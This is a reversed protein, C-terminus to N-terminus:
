ATSTYQTAAFLNFEGQYFFKLFSEFETTLQDLNDFKFMGYNVDWFCFPGDSQVDMQIGLAHGSESSVIKGNADREVPLASVHLVGSSKNLFLDKTHRDRIAAILKTISDIEQSAVVIEKQMKDRKLVSEPIGISKDAKFAGSIHYEAQIKRDQATVLAEEQPKVGMKEQLGQIVKSMSLDKLRTEDQAEIDQFSRFRKHPNQLRAKILRYNIAACAGRGLIYHDGWKGQDFEFNIYKKNREFWDTEKLAKNLKIRMAKAAATEAQTSVLDIQQTLSKMFQEFEAEKLDLKSKDIKAGDLIETLFKNIGTNMTFAAIIKKAKALTTADLTAESDKLFEEKINHFLEEFKKRYGTEFHYLKGLIANLNKQLSKDLDMFKAALGFVEAEVLEILKPSEIAGLNAADRKDGLINILEKAGLKGKELIWDKTFGLRLLLQQISQPLFMREAAISNILNQLYAKNILTQYRVLVENRFKPRLNELQKVLNPYVEYIYYRDIEQGDDINKQLAVLDAELDVIAKLEAELGFPSKEAEVRKLEAEKARLQEAKEAELKKRLVEQEKDFLKRWQFDLETVKDDLIKITKEHTTCDLLKTIFKKNFAEIVKDHTILNKRLQDLEDIQRSLTRSDDFQLKAFEEQKQKAVAEFALTVNYISHLDSDKSALNQVGEAVAKFWGKSKASELKKYSVKTSKADTRTLEYNQFNEVTWQQHLLDVFGTEGLSM